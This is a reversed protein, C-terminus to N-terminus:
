LKLANNGKAAPGIRGFGSGVVDNASCDDIIAVCESAVESLKDFVLTNIAYVNVPFIRPYTSVAVWLM